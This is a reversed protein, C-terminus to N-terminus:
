GFYIHLILFYCISYLLYYLFLISYIFYFYFLIIHFQFFFFFFLSLSINTVSDAIVRANSKQYGGSLLMVLPICTVLDFFLFLHFSLFLFLFFFPSLPSLSPPPLSLPPLPLPLSLLLPFLDLIGRNRAERFVIEDRQVVGAPTINM